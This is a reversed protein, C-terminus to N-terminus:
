PPPSRWGSSGAARSCAAAATAPLRRHRGARDGDAKRQECREGRLGYIGGFFTLNEEVTLDRYLSFAQNMYGISRKVEESDACSTSATSPPPAPRHAAAPRLAHPHLHEQRQREPGPLRLDHRTSVYFTLHDVATFSGFRRTLDHLEIANVPRGDTAWAEGDRVHGAKVRADPQKLRLRVGFVQKGREEPTQLNAPTFEGRPPSARWWPPVPESIGDIRLPVADSGVSFRALRSEPVYVRM